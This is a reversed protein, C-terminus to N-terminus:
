FKVIEKPKQAKKILIRFSHLTGPLNEINFCFLQM